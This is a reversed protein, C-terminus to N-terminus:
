NGCIILIQAYRIILSRCSTAITFIHSITMDSLSFEGFVEYHEKHMFITMHIIVWKGQKYVYDQTNMM